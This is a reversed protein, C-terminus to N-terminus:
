LSDGSQHRQVAAEGAQFSTLKLLPNLIGADTIGRWRRHSYAYSRHSGADSRRITNIARPNQNYLHLGLRDNAM